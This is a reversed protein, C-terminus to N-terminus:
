VCHRPADFCCAGGCFDGCQRIWLSREIRCQRSQKIEIGPLRPVAFFPIAFSFAMLCLVQPAMQALPQKSLEIEGKISIALLLYIFLAEYIAEPLRLDSKLLKAIFGLLFFFVIVYVM